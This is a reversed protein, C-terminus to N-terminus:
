YKLREETKKLAKGFMLNRVLQLAETVHLTPGGNKQEYQKLRRSYRGLGWTEM